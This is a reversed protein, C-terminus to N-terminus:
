WRPQVPPNGSKMYRACTATIVRKPVRLDVSGNTARRGGTIKDDAQQITIEYGLFRAVGTRAHTILTKDSNLELKLDDRLFQAL